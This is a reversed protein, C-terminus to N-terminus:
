DFHLAQYLKIISKITSICLINSIFEFTEPNLIYDEIRDGVLETEDLKAITIRRDIKVFDNALKVMDKNLAAVRRGSRFM